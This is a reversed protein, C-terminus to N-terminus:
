WKKRYEVRAGNINDENGLFGVMADARLITSNTLPVQWRVGVGYQDGAANRGVRDGMVGLMATEVILQQAFEDALLNLGLAMGFTDNATDDLTPYGTLNDSEFLIGTNRLIGGAVGARAVSQPRDFGAFMNFYPVVTSPHGTILSNESLLLVGDATQGVNSQQGANVIIRTSNSILRGYRRTYGIGINHYSRNDFTRDDLFAYDIEFYGNLAEIFTAIGMVRAASDDGQFADSNIKDYGAFFTIDMNSIDFRPSNRAPITAAFGLIDDEMWIGNQFFLPIIGIAFPADFPLTKGIFGGALAGLDAEFFAFNFNANGEFVAEDNDFVYRTNQGGSTLPTHGAVFRGTSTLKLHHFLNLQAAVQSTGDGGQNNSAFGVRADGFVLYQPNINNHFGLLSSGEPIPGLQYWPRGLEILPRQNANLTKGQYVNMEALPDYAMEPMTPTPAFNGHAGHVFQACDDTLPTDDKYRDGKRPGPALKWKTSSSLVVPQKEPPFEDDEEEEDEDEDEEKLKSAFKRFRPKKKEQSQVLAATQVPEQTETTAFSISPQIESGVLPIAAVSSDEALAEPAILDNRLGSGVVPELIPEQGVVLQIDSKESEIVEAPLSSAPLVPVQSARPPALKQNSNGPESATAIDEEPKWQSRDYIKQDPTLAQPNFGSSSKNEAPSHHTFRDTAAFEAQEYPSFRPQDNADNRHVGLSSEYVDVPGRDGLAVLNTETQSESRM